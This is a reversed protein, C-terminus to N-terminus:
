KSDLISKLAHIFQEVDIPKTVFGDMGSDMAAQRDEEFANATMAVIVTKSLVPDKLQRITRTAQHGNMVPMQVDMLILDFYGPPSASLKNVADQGDQATEVLFGYDTLVESAIERNLENDDTVLIRMGAFDPKHEKPEPVPLDPAPGQWIRFFLTVMFETGEGQRTHVEIMGNMMEVIAKTIAMGLGTGQIKNVTSNIEREFAEFVRYTFEQSMGIGTDKVRIEYCGMGELDFEKQCLTLFIHGGAPTFKIANSLLNMLIQKLHINDCYVYPTKVETEVHFHLDKEVMQQSVMIQIEDFISLLSNESEEIVMRGNEIRSMDLVDNILDLLINGSSLIKKLYDLVKKDDGLSKEALAAFGMIANMPTRIDHSMNSLFRTKAASAQSAASAAESLARRILREETLNSLAFLFKKDRGLTMPCCIVSLWMNQGFSKNFGELELVKRSQPRETNLLNKIKRYIENTENKDDEYFKEAPIGLIRDANEFVYDVKGDDARVMFIVTDINQSISRYFMQNYDKRDGEIIGLSERNEEMRDKM